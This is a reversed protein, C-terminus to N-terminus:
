VKRKRLLGMAGLGLMCLTAPEPVTASSTFSATSTFGDGVPFDTVNAFSFSFQELTLAYPIATGTITVNNGTFEESSLFQRGIYGTQFNINLVPNTSTNDAYFRIQGAGTVGYKAGAWIMTNTIALQDMVFWTDAYSFGTLSVHLNLGTKSDDWGANIINNAWDVHFLPNASDGSPDSFTAVTVSGAQVNGAFFLAATLVLECIILRSRNM